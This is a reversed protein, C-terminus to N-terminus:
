LFRASPRHEGSVEDSYNSICASLWLALLIINFYRLEMFLEEHGSKKDRDARFYLSIM